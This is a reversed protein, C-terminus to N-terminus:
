LGYIENCRRTLYANDEDSLIFDGAKANMVAQEPTRAGVLTATMGTQKLSWGIAIYVCPVGNKDAIERMVTLLANTKPWAEESYYPYFGARVDRGRNDPSSSSVFVPREKYKGSLVGGAISGYTLVGVNNAACYPLIEKEIGRNLLSYPPQLSVIPCYQKAEDILPGNFNSVGLYRFYGEEKMKYLEEFADKLPHTPDPDPWHVQMLDITDVDLRKLSGEIQRRLVKPRWDKHYQHNEDQYSVCKTAVIVRDRYGKIAKGVVTESHGYGYPQATDILNIGAEIGARLTAISLDDDAEGSGAWSDGGMGWTGLGVVSCNLESDGLKRYIMGTGGNKALICFESMVCGRM